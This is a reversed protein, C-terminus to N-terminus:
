NGTVKIYNNSRTSATGSPATVVLRVDYQGAQQYVHTPNQLTSTGGDGFEWYWGTVACGSTQSTDNFAVTLPKGGTTPTANFNAIPLPCPTPSATPSASASGSASSSASASASASASPSPTPTPVAGGIPIGAISGSRITFTSAAALNVGGGMINSALPTILDMTCSLQISAQGGLPPIGTVPSVGDAQTFTPAPINSSDPRPSCNIAQSDKVIEQLYEARQAQKQANDPSSWADAHSAAYNAGIRTANQLAVWGYFVRGFDIAMVLLLALIPLIMAFEVLAQGRPVKRRRWPLKM